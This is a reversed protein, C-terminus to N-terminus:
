RFYEGTMWAILELGVCVLGISEATRAKPTSPPFVLAMYTAALGVIPIAVVILMGWFPSRPPASFHEFVKLFAFANAAMLAALRTTRAGDSM